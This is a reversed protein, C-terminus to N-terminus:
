GMSGSLRVRFPERIKSAKAFQQLRLLMPLSVEQGKAILVLGTESLVDEDLVMDVKLDRLVTLRSKAEEGEVCLAPEIAALIQPDYYGERLKLSKLAERAPIGAAELVDFDLAIKLIRAGIPIKGGSLSDRPYGTGDFHKEQYKIIETIEEMRPIGAILSSGIGPHMKYLQSEEESLQQSNYLNKLLSEPFIVCGIQSLLAATELQWVNPLEMQEAIKRVYNKIRSTRGFAQPNVLGLLETLVKISSRLTNELLEKEATVLRYQQVAATLMNSLTDAACPKTLLRFVSGDNIARMAMDIDAYGTLM